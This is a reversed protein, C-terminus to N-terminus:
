LIYLKVFICVSVTQDLWQEEALVSGVLLDHSVQKIQRRQLLDDATGVEADQAKYANLTEGLQKYLSELDAILGAKDEAM